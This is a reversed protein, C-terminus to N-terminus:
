LLSFNKSIEQVLTLVRSPFHGGHASIMRFALGNRLNRTQNFSLNHSEYNTKFYLDVDLYDILFRMAVEITSLTVASHLM